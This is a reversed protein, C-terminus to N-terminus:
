RSSLPFHREHSMPTFDQVSAMIYDHEDPYKLSLSIQAPHRCFQADQLSKTVHLVQLSRNKKTAPLPFEASVQWDQLELQKTHELADTQTDHSLPKLTCELLEQTCNLQEENLLKQVFHM